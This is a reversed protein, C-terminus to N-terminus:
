ASAPPPERVGLWIDRLEFRNCVGFARYIQKVHDHVTHTSRHIQSGIDPESLGLALLPLVPRGAPSIRRTLSERLEELRIFRQGYARAVARSAIGLARVTEPDAKWGADRGHAEVIIWRRDPHIGAPLVARAFDQVGAEACLAKYKSAAWTSPPFLASRSLCAGSAPGSEITGDKPTDDAPFGSRAEERFRRAAIEDAGSIAFAHARWRKAGNGPAADMIWCATGPRIVSATGKAAHALWASADPARQAYLTDVFRCWTDADDRAEAPAPRAHLPNINKRTDNM